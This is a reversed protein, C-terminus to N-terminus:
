VAKLYTRVMSIITDGNKVIRRARSPATTFRIRNPEEILVGTGVAGIELYPPFSLTLLDTTESLVAENIGVWHKLRRVEWHAPIDGLWEVGSPKYAPYPHSMLHEGYNPRRNDRLSTEFGAWHRFLSKIYTSQAPLVPSGHPDDYGTGTWASHNNM